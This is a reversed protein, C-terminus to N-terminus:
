RSRSWRGSPPRQVEPLLHGRTDTANCCGPRQAMFVLAHTSRQKRLATAGIGFGYRLVVVIATGIAFIGDALRLGKGFWSNLADILYALALPFSPKDSM